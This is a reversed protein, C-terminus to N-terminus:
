SFCNSFNLTPASRLVSKWRVTLFHQMQRGSQEGVRAAEEEHIDGESCRGKSNLKVCTSRMHMM